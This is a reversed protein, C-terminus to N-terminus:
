VLLSSRSEDKASHISLMTTLFWIRCQYVFHFGTSLKNERVYTPDMSTEVNLFLGEPAEVISIGDQGHRITKGKRRDVRVRHVLTVVVSDFKTPVNPHHAISSSSVLIALLLNNEVFM